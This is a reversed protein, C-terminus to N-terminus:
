LRNQGRHGSLARTLQRAIIMGLLISQLKKTQQIILIHEQQSANKQITTLSEQTAHTQLANDAQHAMQLSNSPQHKVADQQSLQHQSNATPVTQTAIFDQIEQESACQTKLEQQTM